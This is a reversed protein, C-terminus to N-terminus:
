DKKGGGGGAAVGAGKSTRPASIHEANLGLYDEQGTFEKGPSPTLSKEWENMLHSATRRLTAPGFKSLAPWPLPDKKLAPTTKTPTSECPSTSFKAASEHSLRVAPSAPGSGSVTSPLTTTDSATSSSRSAHPSDAAEDWADWADNSTVSGAKAPTTKHQGRSTPSKKVTAACAVPTTADVGHENWFNPNALDPLSGQTASKAHKRSPSPTKTGRDKSAPRLRTKSSRSQVTRTSAHRRLTPSAGPVVSQHQTAEDGVTAQRLDELFTWLGDRFDTAMKKGTQLLAEHDISKELSDSLDISPKASRSIETTLDPTTSTRALLAPRKASAISDLSPRRVGALSEKRPPPPPGMRGVPSRVEERGPSLLSLTRAHRSGAFVTRNSSRGGNILAKRREMEQQMLMGPGDADEEIDAGTPSTQLPQLQTLRRADNRKKNAEHQTWSLKLKNLHAEARHLEEKLELVRREQAAIATLFNTDTPGTPLALSEPMVAQPERSPSKAATRTPSTSASGQVQVPFSTSFRNTRLSSGTTSEAISMARAHSQFSSRGPSSGPSAPSMVPEAPGTKAAVGGSM